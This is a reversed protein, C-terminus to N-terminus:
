RTFVLLGIAIGLADAALDRLSCTPPTKRRDLGEKVLGATASLSIAFLRSGTQPNHLQDHYIYYSTGVLLGSVVVHELKDRGLWPDEPKQPKVAPGSEGWAGTSFLIAAGIILIPWVSRM